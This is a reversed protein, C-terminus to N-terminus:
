YNAFSNYKIYPPRGGAGGGGGGGGPLAEPFYEIGNPDEEAAAAPPLPPRQQAARVHNGGTVAPVEGAAFTSSRMTQTHTAIPELKACRQCYVELGPHRNLLM